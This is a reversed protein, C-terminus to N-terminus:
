DFVKAPNGFVKTGAPVHRIVVSGAGVTARDGVKKLPLIRAGSGLFVMEGLEVQGTVDCHGSLTTWDGVRVDHGISSHCNVVVFDGISVDCTIVANPCLVVGKGINVNLGVVAYPHILSVFEASRELLSECVARKIAPSGIACIFLEDVSPKHDAITGIIKAPYDFNDLAALNDDLFGAIEWEEECDADALAWNYVERGFGGAGVIILKKM